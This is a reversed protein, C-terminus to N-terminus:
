RTLLILIQVVTVFINGLEHNRFLHRTYNEITHVTAFIKLFHWSFKLSTFNQSSSGIKLNENLLCWRVHKERRSLVATCVSLRVDAMKETIISQRRGQTCNVPFEENKFLNQTTNPINKNHSAV